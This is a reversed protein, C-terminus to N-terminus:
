VLFPIVAKRHPPYDKFREKYWRHHSVARPVLNAFTFLFFSLGALSWTAIAWGAWEVLEAAYNPSSLWRFAGGQPIRYDNEGAKRLSLLIGDSHINGAFGAVFLLVGLSCRPYGLWSASYSGLQSIWRANLYANIVNFVIAMLSIAFPMPKRASRLRFPYVFARYLYHTLWLLCFFAPVTERAHAGCSYVAAFVLAAPSEMLLWGLRNSIVPGWGGRVHRGYPATIWFLVVFVLAGTAIVSWALTQHLRM